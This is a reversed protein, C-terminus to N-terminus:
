ECLLRRLNILAQNVQVLDGLLESVTGSPVLELFQIKKLLSEINSYYGILKQYDNGYNPSDKDTNKLVKYLTICHDDKTFEYKNRLNEIKM